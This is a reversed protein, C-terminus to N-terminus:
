QIDHKEKTTRQRSFCNLWKYRSSDTSVLLLVAATDMYIVAIFYQFLDGSM